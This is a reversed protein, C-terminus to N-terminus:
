FLTPHPKYNTILIETDRCKLNKREGIYHVNLNREEALQLIYEHDFESLAGPQGTNFTADFCDKADEKSWKKKLKYNNGKDLYPPDSYIFLGDKNKFHYEKHIKRFDCNFFQVDSKVLFEYTKNINLLLQEKSNGDGRQLTAPQGMYGFNSLILFYVAREIDNDPTRHKCEEWFMPHIPTMYIYDYLEQKHRLLVNFGNYVNNDIDNLFNYQAKPKNFFMGGAGFFPEIYKNHSPFYPIIKHALAQKNGLRRLIM